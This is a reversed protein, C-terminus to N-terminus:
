RTNPTNYNRWYNLEHCLCNVKKDLEKIAEVLVTTLKNYKVGLKEDNIGYKIDNEDPITVSVIEPLVKQTDQAILGIHNEYNIDGCIHYGVGCLHLVTSLANCIPKIDTKLRSDSTVVVDVVTLCRACFDGNGDRCVVTSGVNAACMALNKNNWTRAAGVTTEVTDFSTAFSIAWGTAWGTTNSAYGVYVDKVFVQPYSWTSALEGIWVVDSAGDDGFRVTFDDGTDTLNIAFVNYWSGSGYNYGGLLFEHSKGTNYQYVRVTFTMMSGSNHMATPLKIKIAGTETTNSTIRSGGGPFAIRTPASADDQTRIAYTSAGATLSSATGTLGAGSGAFCVCSCFVGASDIIARTSGNTRFRIDDGGANALYLKDGTATAAADAFFLVPLAASATLRTLCLAGGVTCDVINGAFVPNDKPAFCAALTGGLCLANNATANIGLYTSGLCTGNEYVKTGFVAASCVCTTGFTCTGCVIIGCTTTGSILPSRVCSTACMCAGAHYPSCVCTSGLVVPSCLCTSGITVAGIVCTSGCTIPSCVCTSGFIIPGCVCTTGITIPSTVCTTGNIIPSCVKTSGTIVPSCVYTSGLVVPSSVCITGVICSATIATIACISNACFTGDAMIKAKSNGYGTVFNALITGGSAALNNIRGDFTVIGTGTSPGNVSNGIFYLAPNTSTVKGNFIPFFTSGLGGNSISFNITNAEDKFLLYNAYNATTDIKGQYPITPCTASLGGAVFIPAVIRTTGSIIPSCVCTSAYVIPGCVCTTGITVPSSVCSTGCIIPSCVKTSGTIVPSCVYTSGLVIPSALCTTGCTIAGSVCTSGCTTTGSILPSKICSSACSTTGSILPSKICSSACSTTGSILPSRVCNTACINGTVKLQTGDFTMNPNSCICQANVYTGVGNATSGAWLCVDIANGTGDFGAFNNNTGLHGSNGWTLNSLTAHNSSSVGAVSTSGMRSGVVYTIGGTPITVKGYNTNANASSYTIRAYPVFELSESSLSGLALGRTDEAQASALSTYTAQPQVFITRFKQSTVDSTTPVLMQYVNYFRANIGAVWGGTTPDNVRIFANSAGSFPTTSGVTYISTNGSIRMLTYSGKTIANVNSQNDEDAIVAANFNPSVANDTATAATWSTALGGSYLYTGINKHFDQHTTWPMMGHTERIAFTTGSTAKYNVLAVMLNNFSWTSQSWTINTGDTSYLFWAGVTATHASSTWPSTLTKKVGNWYYDLNGTLTIRRNAYSYSVNINSGDIFGSPDQWDTTMTFPVYTNALCTGNEVFKPSTVCTSGTLITGKVVGTSCMLPTQICTTFSPSAIPAYYSPLQGGLCSANTAITATGGTTLYKNALCTGNEVLKVGCITTGSLLTACVAKIKISSDFELNM